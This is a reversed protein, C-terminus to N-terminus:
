GVDVTLPVPNCSTDMTMHGLHSNDSFPEQKLSSFPTQPTHNIEGGAAPLLLTAYAESPRVPCRDRLDTGPKLGLDTQAGPNIECM